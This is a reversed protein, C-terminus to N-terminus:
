PTLGYTTNLFDADAQSLPYGIGPPVVGAYFPGDQPRANTLLNALEVEAHNARKGVIPSWTVDGMGPDRNLGYDDIPPTSDGGIGALARASVAWMRRETDAWRQREEDSLPPPPPATLRLQQEATLSAPAGIQPIDKM